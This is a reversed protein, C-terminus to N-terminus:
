VDKLEGIPNKLTFIFSLAMLVLLSIAATVFSIKFVDLLIVLLGYFFVRPLMSSANKYTATSLPDKSNGKEFMSSDLPLTVLISFFGILVVSAFYFINNEFFIRMLWIIAMMFAGFFITKARNAKKIKGAFYTFIIGTVSVMVPIIAVSEITGFFLFIFIPWIVGEAVSHFSYVGQIIYEKIDSKKNFFKKINLINEKKPRDQLNKIKFLPLTSILLIGISIFILIQQNLFVLIIAGFVPALVGAFRRVIYLMSTNGSINLSQKSCIMFLYMHSIWYGTDYVAFFLALLILLMWNNPSMLYLILFGFIVFLTALLMVYRAGIKQIVWKVIFNLPIDFINYICYYLMVSGVSYGLKLLFVPVFVMIMSRAFVHLWISLEFLRFETHWFNHMRHMHYNHFLQM